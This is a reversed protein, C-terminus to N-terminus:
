KGAEEANDPHKRKLEARYAEIWARNEQGGHFWAVEYYRGAGGGGGRDLLGVVTGEIPMAMRDVTVVDKIQIEM